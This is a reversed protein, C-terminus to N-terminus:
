QWNKIVALTEELMPSERLTEPGHFHSYEKLVNSVSTRNFQLEMILRLHFFATRNGNGLM